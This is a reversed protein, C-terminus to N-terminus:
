KNSIFSLYTTEEEYNTIVKSLSVEARLQKHVYVAGKALFVCRSPLWPVFVYKIDNQLILYM